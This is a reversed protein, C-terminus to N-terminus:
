DALQMANPEINCTALLLLLLLMLHENCVTRTIRRVVYFLLACLSALLAASFVNRHDDLRSVLAISGMQWDYSLVVPCALLWISRSLVHAYSM